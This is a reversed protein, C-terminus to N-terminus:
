SNNCLIHELQAAAATTAGSAVATDATAGPYAAIPEEEKQSEDTNLTDESCKSAFPSTSCRWSSACINLSGLTM